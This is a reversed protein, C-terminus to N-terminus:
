SQPPASIFVWYHRYSSNEVYAYGIGYNTQAAWFPDEGLVHARHGSSNLWADWAEQATIYGGAISEIYNLTAPSTWGNPLTYGAQSVLFNPGHGDPNVHSFYDRQGMDLARARAVEALTSNCTMNQREQDPNNIALEAIASEQANLTCAPPKSIIPLYILHDDENTYAPIPLTQPTFATIFEHSISPPEGIDPPLPPQASLSAPLVAATLLGITIFVFVGIFVLLIQPVKM